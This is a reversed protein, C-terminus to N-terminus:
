RSGVTVIMAQRGSEKRARWSWFRDANCATCDDAWVTSGIGLRDLEFEMARHLNLSATGSVTQDRAGAGFRQTLQTLEPEGFEYCSACISPGVIATTTAADVAPDLQAMARLTSEVVGLSLGRWGAHAAGVVGTPSVLAIPVCDAVQIALTTGVAAGVAADAVDGACEGPVTVAVVRDSHVQRLWTWAGPAVAQRLEDTAAATSMDGDSRDSMLVSVSRGGDVSSSWLTTTMSATVDSAANCATVATHSAVRLTAWSGFAVNTVAVSADAFSRRSTSTTTTM